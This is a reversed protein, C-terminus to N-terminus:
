ALSPDGLNHIQVEATNSRTGIDREVTASFYTPESWKPGVLGSPGVAVTAIRPVKPM